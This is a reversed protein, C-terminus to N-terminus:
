NRHLFNMGLLIQTFLKMITAEPINGPYSSIFEELNGQALESIIVLHDQINGPVRDTISCRDELKM